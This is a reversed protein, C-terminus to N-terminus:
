NDVVEFSAPIVTARRKGRAAKAKGTFFRLSEGVSMFQSTKEASVVAKAAAVEESVVQQTPAANQAAPAAVFENEGIADTQAASFRRVLKSAGESLGSFGATMSERKARITEESKEQMLAFEEATIHDLMQVSNEGTGVLIYREGVEVVFLSKRPELSRKGVIRISSADLTGAGIGVKSRLVRAGVFLLLVIGIMLGTSSFMSMLSSAAIM